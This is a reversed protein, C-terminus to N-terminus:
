MRREARWDGRHLQFIAESWRSKHHCSTWLVWILRRQLCNQKRIVTYQLFQKTQVGGYLYTVRSRFTDTM